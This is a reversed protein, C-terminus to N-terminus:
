KTAYAKKRQKDLIEEAEDIPMWELPSIQNVEAKFMFPLVVPAKGLKQKVINVLMVWDAVRIYHKPTIRVVKDEAYRTKPLWTGLMVDSSQELNSTEQGDQLGPLGIDREAIQRGGQAILIVPCHMELALDKSGDVLAIYQERMEGRLGRRNMRQLYDLAIAVPKIKYKKKIIRIGQTAEALTLRPREPDADSHGILWWPLLQRRACADKIKHIEVVSLNGLLLDEVSIAAMQAADYLGQEEISQEWTVTIVAQEGGLGMNSIGIANNRLIRNVLSSKGNSTYGLVSILYTPRLPLLRHKGDLGTIGTIIGEEPHEIGHIILNLTKEGIETPSYISKEIKEDTKADIM